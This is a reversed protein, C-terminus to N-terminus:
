IEQEPIKDLEEIYNQGEETLFFSKGDSSHMLFGYKCLNELNLVTRYFNGSKITLIPVQEINSTALGIINFLFTGVM